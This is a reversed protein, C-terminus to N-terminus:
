GSMTVYGIIGTSPLIIFPLSNSHTQPRDPRSLSIVFGQRPSPSMFRLLIFLDPSCSPLQCCRSCYTRDPSRPGKGPRKWRQKFTCLSASAVAAEAAPSDCACLARHTVKERLNQKDTKNALTLTHFTNATYDPIYTPIIFVHLFHALDECPPPSWPYSQQRKKRLRAHHINKSIANHLFCLSVHSYLYMSSWEPLTERYRPPPQGWGPPIHQSWIFSRTCTSCTIEGQAVSWAQVHM